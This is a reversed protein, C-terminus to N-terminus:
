AARVSEASYFRRNASNQHYGLLASIEQSKRGQAKLLTMRCHQRFAHTKGKRYGHELATRQPEDLTIKLFRGMPKLPLPAVPTCANVCDRKARKKLKIGPKLPLM